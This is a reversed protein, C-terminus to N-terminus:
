KHVHKTPEDHTLKNCIQEENVTQHGKWRRLILLCKMSMIVALMAYANSVDFVDDAIDSFFRAKTVKVLIGSRIHQNKIYLSCKKEIHQHLTDDTQLRFQVLEIFNGQNEAEREELIRPQGFGQKGCLTILPELVKEKQIM